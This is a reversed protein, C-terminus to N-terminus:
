QNPTKKSIKRRIVILFLAAFPLLYPLSAASLVQGKDDSTTSPSSIPSSTLQGYTASYLEPVTEVLHPTMFYTGVSSGRGPYHILQIPSSGDSLVSFDVTFLLTGGNIGPIDGSRTAVYYIQGYTPGNYTMNLEEDFIKSENRIIFPFSFVSAPSINVLELVTPDYHIDVQVAYVDVCNEISVNLSFSEGVALNGTQNPLARIATQPQEEASVSRALNITPQVLLILIALFLVLSKTKM